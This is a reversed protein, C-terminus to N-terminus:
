FEYTVGKEVLQVNPAIKKFEEPYETHIPIVLKPKLIDMVEGLELGSIHGSAHARVPDSMGFFHIWNNFREESIAMEESHPETSARFFMSGKEPKLDILEQIQYFGLGLLYHNQNERIEEASVVCIDKNQQLLEKEWDSYVTKLRHYILVNDLSCPLLQKERLYNLYYYNNAPIAFSRQVAQALKSLTAFRSVDAISYDTAVLGQASKILEYAEKYVEDEGIKNESKIRTGECLFIDIKEKALAALSERVIKEREGYLRFDGSYLLNGASTRILFMMAGPVSHDMAYPTIELNKIKFTQGPMVARIDRQKVASNKHGLGRTKFTVIENELNAPRVVSFAEIVSKTEGSTYVPIREDLFSVDAVHDMHGHSLLLGDIAPEKHLAFPLNNEAELMHLFDLRYIGEMQPILGLSLFDHIGHYARPQLFEEFYKGAEKYSKGFDLFLRTGKDELLIKNGGIENIGGHFTLKM